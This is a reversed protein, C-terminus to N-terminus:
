RIVTIHGSKAYFQNNGDNFTVQYIYVGLPVTEGNYNGNWYEDPNTSEFVVHGLRGLVKVHYSSFDILSIVPKWENNIGGLYIANPVYVYPSQTVCSINSQSTESFGFSNMGEVAEIYYCFEGDAHTGVFMEVNDEYFNVSPSVSGVPATSFVGNVSRYIDYRIVNGDWYEYSNWQLLNVMTTNNENVKLVLSRGNNSTLANRGCSDEITVRYFYSTTSTEVNNDVFKIPNSGASEDAIFEFPDALDATRELTFLSITSSEDSHYRIEIENEGTVTVSQLYSFQPVPPQQIFRCSKNSLSYEGDYSVAKITYCYSVNGQVGEHVYSTEAGTVSAVLFNAGGNVSAYLEYSKVGGNWNNYGNWTLTVEKECIALKTKLYITNHQLGMPSTNPTPPNGSVCSDYAEVGYMESEYNAFSNINTYTTNNYGYVTDITQWGGGIYGLIIYAVADESSSPNWNIVANGNSTDVSVSTIVPFAPSTIDQFQGGDISSFSTCGSGDDLRIQYSVSDDCFDITDRYYENSYITSDLLTWSGIPYERYVYYWSSSGSLQPISLPNWQLVSTGDSPNSVKLFVSSLTDSAVSESTSFSTIYYSVSTIDAGAGLDFFSTVNINSETAVQSFGSGYDAYIRYEIFNGSGDVSPLWTLTVDGNLDVSVCRFEPSDVQSFISLASFLWLFTLLATKTIKARISGSRKYQIQRLVKFLM